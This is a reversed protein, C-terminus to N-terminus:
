AKKECHCTNGKIKPCLGGKRPGSCGCDTCEKAATRPRPVHAPSAATLALALTGLGISYLIPKMNAKM